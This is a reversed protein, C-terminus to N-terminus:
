IESDLIKRNGTKIYTDIYTERLDGNHTVEYYANDPLTTSVLAKWNQLTKCFWVVYIEYVVGQFQRDKKLDWNERIHRGVLERALEQYNAHENQPFSPMVPSGDDWNRLHSRDM